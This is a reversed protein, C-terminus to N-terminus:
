NIKRCYQCTIKIASQNTALNINGNGICGECQNINVNVLSEYGLNNRRNNNNDNDEYDRMKCCYCLSILLFIFSIFFPVAGFLIPIYAGTEYYLIIFNVLFPLSGLLSSISLYSLYKANSYNKRNRYEINKQLRKKEFCYVAFVLLNVGFVVVALMLRLFYVFKMSGSSPLIVYEYVSFAAWPFVM